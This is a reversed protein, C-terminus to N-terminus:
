CYTLYRRFRICPRLGAIVLRGTACCWERSDLIFSFWRTSAWHWEPSRAHGPPKPVLVEASHNQSKSIAGTFGHRRLIAEIQVCEAIGSAWFQEVSQHVNEPLFQEGTLVSHHPRIEGLRTWAERIRQRLRSMQSPTVELEIHMAPADLPVMAPLENNVLFEQCRVFHLVLSPFDEIVSAHHEVISISEPERGLLNLYCWRVQDATVTM